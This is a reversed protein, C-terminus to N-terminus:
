HLGSVYASVAKIEEETMKSAIDRMMGNPDNQREGNAFAHLQAETYAQYQASLKPWKAAPMGSGNPGHCAMCAPVGSESNGGRYIQQGLDLSDESVAGPTSEKSAYYAALNAMDEESLAAVMPSMIDNARKGNKFEVLQKYLYSAHQGALKPYVDAPSNGDVGHCAACSASIEKGASIDGAALVLPSSMIGLGLVVAFIIKKM